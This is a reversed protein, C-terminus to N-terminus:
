LFRWEVAIQGDKEGESPLPGLEALIEFAAPSLELDDVDCDKCQDHVELEVSRDGRTALVRLGCLSRTSIEFLRPSLSVVLAADSPASGCLSSAPQTATALGSHTDVLEGKSSYKYAISASEQAAVDAAPTTRGPMPRVQVVKKEMQTDNNVPTATLAHHVPINKPRPTHIQVKAATAKKRSIPTAKGGSSSSSSTPRRVNGTTAPEPATSYISDPEIEEEEYDDQEAEWGLPDLDPPFEPTDDVIHLEPLDPEPHGLVVQHLHLEHAEHLQGLSFRYIAPIPLANSPSSHLTASALFLLLSTSIFHM